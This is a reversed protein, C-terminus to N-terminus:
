CRLPGLGQRTFPAQSRDTRVQLRVEHGEFDLLVQQVEPHQTPLQQAQDMWKFWAWPGEVTRIITRGDLLTVVARIGPAFAKDPWQYALAVSPGHRYNLRKGGLELSFQGITESMTLPMVDFDIRAQNQGWPFFAQRVQAVAEFFTAGPHGPELVVAPDAMRWPSSRTDVQGSLHQEFYRNFVGDSAFLSNLDDVALEAAADRAFPYRGELALSCFPQVEAMWSAQLSQTQGQRLWVESAEVIDLLLPQVQSPVQAVADNLRQLADNAPLPVNRTLAAQSAQIFQGTELLVGQLQQTPAPAGEPAVLWQHLPQFYETVPHVPAPAPAHPKVLGAYQQLRQSQRQALSLWDLAQVDPELTTERTAARLLKLVPSDPKALQPLRRPLDQVHELGAVQLDDFFRQWNDIYDRHYLALVEERIPAPELLSALGLLRQEHVLELALFPALRQNMLQYGASSFVGRVGSTQPEGSRRGLLMLGESGAGSAISFEALGQRDLQGLLKHYLRQALPESALRARVRDILARDLSLPTAGAVIDQLRLLHGDLRQREPEGSLAEHFQVYWTALAQIDFPAEGGLMLYIGLHQALTTDGLDSGSRLSDQAQQKLEPLWQLQLAQTYRETAGARLPETSPLWRQQLALREIEALLDLRRLSTREHAHELLAVQEDVQALSRLQDRHQAVLVVGVALMALWLLYLARQRCWSLARRLPTLLRGHRRCAHMARMLASSPTEDVVAQATFRVSQLAVQAVGREQAFAAQLFGQLTQGFGQWMPAFGYLRARVQVDPELHLRDLLTADDCAVLANMRAVLDALVQANRSAPAFGVILERQQASLATTYGPLRDCGNILVQVTLADGFRQALEEFRQRLMMALTERVGAKMRLLQSADLVLVVGQLRGARGPRARLGDLLARWLRADEGQPQLLLTASTDFVAVGEVTLCRVDYSAEPSLGLLQRKNVAYPGILLFSPRLAQTHRTVACLEDHLEVERATPPAPAQEVKAAAAAAAAEQVKSLVAAGARRWRRMLWYGTMALVASLVGRATYSSLPQYGDIALRPGHGTILYVLLVLLLILLTRLLLKLARPRM